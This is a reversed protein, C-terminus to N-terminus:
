MKTERIKKYKRPTVKPFRVGTKKEEKSIFVGGRDDFFFKM